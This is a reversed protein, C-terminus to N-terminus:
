QSFPAEAGSLRDKDVLTYLASKQQFTETVNTRIYEIDEDGELRVGQARTIFRKELSTENRLCNLHNWRKGGNTAAGPLGVAFCSAANCSTYRGSSRLRHAERIKSRPYIDGNNLACFAINADEQVGGGCVCM